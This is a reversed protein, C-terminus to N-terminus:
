KLVFYSFAAFAIGVSLPFVSPLLVDTLRYNKPTIQRKKPKQKPPKSSAPSAPAPPTPLEETEEPVAEDTEPQAEPVKPPPPVPEQPEEHIVIKKEPKQCDCKNKLEENDLTEYPKEWKKDENFNKSLCECKGNCKEKFYNPAEKNYAKIEKYNMDYQSNLSEYEHKKTLIFNSYNKCARSCTSNTKGTNNDCIVDKCQKQVEEQLEKKRTCFTETWEQFWRLFQDTKDENPVNCWKQDLQKNNNGKQYGCLMANWVHKKNEEWWQERSITTKGINESNNEPFMQKLDKNFDDINSGGIMDTGKIIDAYDAFSYKMSEMGQNTYDNFTKGLLMGHSFASDILNQKLNDKENIRYRNGTLKRTCLHRRRPPVLVGKNKDKKNDVVFGTWTELNNDFNKTICPNIHRITKCYANTKYNPCKDLPHHTITCSCHSKYKEPHNNFAYPKSKIGNQTFNYHICHIAKDLYKDPTGVNCNNIMKVKEFFEIVNKDNDNIFGRRNNQIKTYLENYKKKQINFQSKLNHILKTYEKCKEKCSRCKIGDDNDSCKKDNLKCKECDNKMDNVKENLIKCVYEGWEKMWRLRQPIYDDVPPHDNYGCKHQSLILNPIEGNELKKFLMSDEPADCTMAKWVYERNADWWAFRFSQIDHYKNIGKNETKWKKYINEFIARLKTEVENAGIPGKYIDTGRIIDALDAFSYKMADCLQNRKKPNKTDDWSDKIHKGEYAATRLLKRFLIDLTSKKAGLNELPNTCMYKRRPPICINETDVRNTREKCDWKDIHDFPNENNKCANNQKSIKENIKCIINIGNTGNTAEEYIDNPNKGKLKDKMGHLDNKAKAYLQFASKDICNLSPDPKEMKQLKCDCKNEYGEPVEDLSAPMDNSNPPESTSKTKPLQSSPKEMCSCDNNGCLEKLQRHLYEHADTANDIYSEIPYDKYKDTDKDNKFKGRQKEYQPKWQEIFAQYKKCAEECKKKTNEDSINCEYDECATKLTKFEKKQEKCFEDGWETFWRLFQPREAFKSLTPASPNDSFTVDKYNYTYKITYNGGIEELACLMGEWIAPAYENWWTERKGKDDSKGHDNFIRHLNAKLVKTHKNLKSIDSGFFFDRYDGFTYFMSRLFESPITGERLKENLNNSNTKKYYNWSLFTEAAACKIFAKRLDEQTNLNKRENEHSLFYLCLKIRRPPMCEGKGTVLITNTCDWGPYPKKKDKRQCNGVDSNERKNNLLKKVIECEDEEQKKPVPAPKKKNECICANDYGNPYNRFAYENDDTGNPKKVGNKNKCFQTQKECDMAAEQHIYGEATDYIKNGKNQTHLENLFKLVYDEKNKTNQSGNDNYKEANKYLEDYKDKIQKWQDEWKKVNQAYQKCKTACNACEGNGQTCKGDAVNCKECVKLKEYEQSQYKCYWEAWETMWRLKQPIYDDLPTHDSEGSCPNDNGCQMAKWVQDRNAEWWDARLKTHKPDDTAYKDNDNFKDPHQKKLEETIKSFIDKLNNQVGTADGNIDWLDTGRIIDGIDAFSYKIARCVTEKDNAANLDKRDNNEVYLKKINEAEYKAALLVDGLLSHSALNSDNLGRNGTNLHELNSTCMHERRPPMYADPHTQKKHNDKYSWETGIKFREQNKGTCPGGKNSGRKDNSYTTDIKCIDGNLNKGEGGNKFKANKIDGKLVSEGKDNGNSSNKLMRENAEGQLIKAVDTVTKTTHVGSSEVCPNPTPLPKPLSPEDDQEEDEDNESKPMNICCKQGKNDDHQKKCTAIEEKLKSILEKILDDDITRIKNIKIIDDKYEKLNKLSSINDFAELANIFDSSFYKQTLFSNVWSPVSYKYLSNQKYHQNIKEWEAEKKKLWSEVCECKEKCGKICSDDNKTCVEIKRKSKNYGELFDKLWRELLVKFAIKNDFYTSKKVKSQLTCRDIEDIYQCTWKQDRIGKFFYSNNCATNFDKPTDVVRTDSILLDIQTPKGNSSKKVNFNKGKKYDEESIPKCENNECKVGFLPCTGCYESSGFTEEPKKFDMEYKKDNNGRCQKGENLSVLFNDVSSGNNKKKLDQYFNQDYDNHSTDRKNNNIEINYKNKQKIFENRKNEIWKQYNRCAKECNPCDLDVFIKNHRLDTQTCDYGEGSCYRKGSTEGRCENKINELKIKKKRCFEEAWEEFWRLFQPVYDLNTPVNGQEHGCKPNSFLQTNNESQIFYVENNQASCTLAKWVDERNLAWWYERIQKDTLNELTNNNKKINKFINQLSNEIKEKEKNSGLFLDKGRVIDGIDAFSRALATCVESTEKHPHNKVISDGEYKATVLVNGLLDHTTLVNQENIFELNYDCIHRRRYPACAGCGGKNCNIKNNTCIADGNDSFRNTDRMHCPDRDQSSQNTANTDFKFNFYCPNSPPTWVYEAAKLLPQHFKANKYNGKLSKGRKEADKKVENSIIEAINELVNRASKESENTVVSPQSSKSSQSGM